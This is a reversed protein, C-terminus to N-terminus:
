GAGDLQVWLGSVLSVAGVAYTITDGVAVTISLGSTNVPAGAVVAVPGYVVSGNKLVTVECSGTGHTIEAFFHSLTGASRIYRAAVYGQMAIDTGSAMYVYVPYERGVIGPVGQAGTAGTDGKIGQVGQIGQLGQPGTAGTDGKLGQPGTDGTDGKFGQVGQPIQFQLVVDLSTGVNQVTAPQGPAVTTVGAVAFTASNGQPGSVIAIDPITVQSTLTAVPDAM